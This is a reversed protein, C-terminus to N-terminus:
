TTLKSQSVAANETTMMKCWMENLFELYVPEKSWSENNERRHKANGPLAVISSAPPSFAFLALTGWFLVVPALSAVFALIHILHAVASHNKELSVPIRAIFCLLLCPDFSVHRQLSKFVTQNFSWPAPCLNALCEWKLTKLTQCSNARFTLYLWM